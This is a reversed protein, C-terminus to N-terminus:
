SLLPQLDHGLAQSGRGRYPRCPQDERHTQAWSYARALIRSRPYIERLARKRRHGARFCGTTDHLQSRTANHNKRVSGAGRYRRPNAVLLHLFCFLVTFTCPAIRSVEECFLATMYSAVVVSGVIWLM